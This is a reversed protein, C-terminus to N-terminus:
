TSCDCVKADITPRNRPSLIEPPSAEPNSGISNPPPFPRSLSGLLLSRAALSSVLFSRRHRGYIELGHFLLHYGKHSGGAAYAALRGQPEGLPAGPHDDRGAALLPEVGQDLLYPAIAANGWRLRSPRPARIWM